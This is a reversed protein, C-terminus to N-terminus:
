YSLAVHYPLDIDGVGRQSMQDYYRGYPGLIYESYPFSDLSFKIFSSKNKNLIHNFM